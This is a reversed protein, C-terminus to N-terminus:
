ILKGRTKGRQAIGDARKSATVKGGKRKAVPIGAGSRLKNLIEPNAMLGAILAGGMGGSSGGQGGPSAEGSSSFLGM